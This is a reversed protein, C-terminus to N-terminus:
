VIKIPTFDILNCSVCRYYVGDIEDNLLAAYPSHIHGYICDTVGYKAFLSRVDRCLTLDPYYPPYHMMVVMREPQKTWQKQATQLSLELRMIERSYIKEDEESFGDSGPLIWGRFGCIVTNEWEFFNNHLFSITDFSNDSLFRNLKNVTEWWYDHNGKSIIKRGPLRNIFDFDMAADKIYTAWSIDGPILILDDNGVVNVINKQLKEIYNDWFQGFVDMSKDPFSISLHFDSIAYISM